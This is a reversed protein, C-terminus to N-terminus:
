NKSNSYKLEIELWKGFKTKYKFVLVICMLFIWSLNSLATGMGSFIFFSVFNTALWCIAIIIM